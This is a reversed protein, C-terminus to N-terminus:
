WRVPATAGVFRAMHADTRLAPLAADGKTVLRWVVWSELTTGLGYGLAVDFPRGGLWITGVAVLLILGLLLLTRRRRAILLVGTALGVPWIGVALGDDPAARVAVLGTVATVLLLAGVRVSWTKTM